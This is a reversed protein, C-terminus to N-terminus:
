GRMLRWLGFGFSAANAVFSTVLAASPRVGLAVRFVIAEVVVVASEIVAYRTPLDLTGVLARNGSWAFPHTVLSAAVAVLVVRWLALGGQRGRFVFWLLLTAIPTEIAVTRM